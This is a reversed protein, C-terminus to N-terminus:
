SPCTQPVQGATRGPPVYLGNYTSSSAPTVTATGGYSPSVTTSTTAPAVSSSSAPAVSSSSSTSATLPGGTVVELNYPTPTLAASEVLTPTGGLQAELQLAAARSDPAYDIVTRTHGYGAPTGSAVTTAYGLGSIVSGAQAAQGTAGTGNVVEVKVGSPAVVTTSPATTTPPATSTPAATGSATAAPAQGTALWQQIQAAGATKDPDLAGPVSTSNTTAYTYSPITSLDAHRFDSALSLLLSNSFASDLTVDKTLGGILSNLAVLNSPSVQEAKKAALKAFAQQRQIRALDSEPYLQYDWTRGGDPSYQYERSRAFALAQSGTLLVCGAKPVVLNSYLDRAPTPFWQWVGGIANAIDEFTIFDFQAVHNVHIGFDQALVQVLLAPSGTNFATNIRTTGYGPVSVLTDRPISFLALSRTQPVVRVLLISDSRQGPNGAVSGFASTGLNRTDSGIVLLTFPAIGSGPAAQSQTASGEPALGPVAVRRIQDLRWHVYGFASGAAVLAMAVVVNAAVLM